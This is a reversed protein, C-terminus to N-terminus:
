IRKCVCTYCLYNNLHLILRNKVEKFFCGVTVLICSYIFLAATSLQRHTRLLVSISSIDYYYYELVMSFNLCMYIVQIVQIQILTKFLNFLVLWFLFLHQNDSTKYVNFVFRTYYCLMFLLNIHTFNTSCFQRYFM